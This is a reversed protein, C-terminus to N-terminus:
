SLVELSTRLHVRLVDEATLQATLLDPCDHGHALLSSKSCLIWYGEWTAELYYSDQTGELTASYTTKPFTCPLETWNLKPQTM